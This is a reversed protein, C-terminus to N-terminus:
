RQQGVQVVLRPDPMIEDELIYSVYDPLTFKPPNDNEDEIYITLPVTVIFGEGSRDGCVFTLRYETQREYDLCSRDGPSYCYDVTIVGSRSDVKFSYTLFVVYLM